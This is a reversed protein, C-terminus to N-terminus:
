EARTTFTFHGTQSDAGVDITNDVLIKGTPAGNNGNLHVHTKFVQEVWKKTVLQQEKGQGGLMIRADDITKIKVDGAAGITIECKDKNVILKVPTDKGPELILETTKDTGSTLNLKTTGDVNSTLQYDLEPTVIGKHMHVDIFTGDVQQGLKGEFTFDAEKTLDYNQTAKFEVIHDDSEMSGIRLIVKDKIIESPNQPSIDLEKQIQLTFVGTKNAIDYLYSIFGTYLNLFLNKAFMTMQQSKPNLVLNVVDSVWGFWSGNATFGTNSGSTHHTIMEGKETPRVPLASDNVVPGRTSTFGLIYYITGYQFLLCPTGIPQEPVGKMGAGEGFPSSSLLVAPFGKKYDHSSGHPWVYYKGTTEDYSSVIGPIILGTHKM